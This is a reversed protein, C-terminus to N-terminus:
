NSNRGGKKLTVDCCDRFIGQWRRCFRDLNGLCVGWYAAVGPVSYYIYSAKSAIALISHHSGRPNLAIFLSSIPYNYM